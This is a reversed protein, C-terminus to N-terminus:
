LLFNVKWLSAPIPQEEWYSLLSSLETVSISWCKTGLLSLTKWFKDWLPWLTRVYCFCSFFARRGQALFLQKWFTSRWDFEEWHWSASQKGVISRIPRYLDPRGSALTRPGTVKYLHQNQRKKWMKGWHEKKKKKEKIDEGQVKTEGETSELYTSSFHRNAHQLFPTSLYWDCTFSVTFSCQLNKM